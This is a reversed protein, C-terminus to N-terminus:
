EAPVVLEYGVTQHSPIRRTPVGKTRWFLEAFENVSALLQEANQKNMQQKTQGALKEIRWVTDHLNPITELNEPKMYDSWIIAVERKCLEAHEEKTKTYRALSHMYADRQEKSANSDPEQLGEILQFMRIVTLAALQAAYPDYIGCPIDCHALAQQPPCFRDLATFFRDILTM